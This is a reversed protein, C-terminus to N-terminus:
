TYLYLDFKYNFLSTFIDTNDSLMTTLPLDCSNNWIEKTCIKEICLVTEIFRGNQFTM